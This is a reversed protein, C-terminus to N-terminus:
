WELINELADYITAFMLRKEETKSYCALNEMEKRFEHLCIDYPQDRHNMLYIKFEELGWRGVSILYLQDDESANEVSSIPYWKEQLKTIKLIHDKVDM